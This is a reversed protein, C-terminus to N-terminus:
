PAHEWLWLLCGTVSLGVGLLGPWVIWGPSDSSHSTGNIRDALLAYLFLAVGIATM